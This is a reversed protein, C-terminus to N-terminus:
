KVEKIKKEIEDIKALLGSIIYKKVILSENDFLDDNLRNSFKESDNVCINEENKCPLDTEIPDQNEKKEKLDANEGLALIAAFVIATQNDIGDIANLVSNTRKNLEVGLSKIIESSEDACDISFIRQGVPIDIKM